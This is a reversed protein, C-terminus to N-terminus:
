SSTAGSVLLRLRETGTNSGSSITHKAVFQGMRMAVNAGKCTYWTVTTIRLFRFPASVTRVDPYMHFM